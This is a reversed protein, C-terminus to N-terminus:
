KPANRNGGLPGQGTQANQRFEAKNQQFVDLLQEMPPIHNLAGAVVFINLALAALAPWSMKIDAGALRKLVGALASWNKLTHWLGFLLFLGGSALHVDLWQGRSLAMFSWGGPKWAGPMFYLVLSSATLIIFSFFVTQSIFKRNM